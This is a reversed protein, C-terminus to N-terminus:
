KKAAPQFLRHLVRDGPKIGLREAAGGALELVAAAPGESAITRESLPETQAEIRHVVGDARIFVMDLRIYTNKMWMTIEQAPAYPFLMGASDALESRFMLGRAKEADTETVEIQFTREGAATAISLTERRMDTQSRTQLQASAPAALASASFILLAACAAARTMSSVTTVM